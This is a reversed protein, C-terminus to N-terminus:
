SYSLAIDSLAFNFRKASSTTISKKLPPCVITYVV